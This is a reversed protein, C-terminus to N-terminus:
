VLNSPMGSKSWVLALVLGATCYIEKYVCLGHKAANMSQLMYMVLAKCCEYGTSIAAGLSRHKCMKNAARESRHQSTALM